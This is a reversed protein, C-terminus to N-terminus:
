VFSVLAKGAVLLPMLELTCLYIFIQLIGYRKASFIHFAKYLLCIELLAFCTALLPLVLQAPINLFLVAVALLYLPVGSLITWCAYSQEWAKTTTTDFFIRNTIAFIGRRLLYFLAISVSATFWLMGHGMSGFPKDWAYLTLLLATSVFGVIYMFIRQYVINTTRIGEIANERPLFFNKLLRFFYHKRDSFVTALMFACLLIGCTVLNDAHHPPSVPIAQIQEVLIASTTSM